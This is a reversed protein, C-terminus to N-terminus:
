KLNIIRKFYGDPIDASIPSTKNFIGYVTSGSGTLSAYLAGSKYLMEKIRKIEPYSDFVPIEFDNFLQQKWTEVPCALIEALPKKPLSPKIKSFAWSTDIHIGPNVLMLKFSSLDIDAPEINEGRGGAVCPENYLFFPCDSGLQLAYTNLQAATLDFLFKEKLLKLTFSADSSGGGLGAGAPICKHLHMKVFPLGPHDKKLLDYATLCLNNKTNNIQLGTVTLENEKQEAAIIELVDTLGLPYFVTEIDHYNDKRKRIIHLGLNIKCNPFAIM